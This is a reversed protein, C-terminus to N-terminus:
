SVAKEFLQIGKKVNNKYEQLQKATQTEKTDLEDYLKKDREVVIDGFLRFEQSIEKVNTDFRNDVYEKMEAFRKDMNDQMEIFRNDVEAFRKDVYEKMEAFRNDMNDQMEAFRKDVNDLRVKVEKIELLIENLIKEVM